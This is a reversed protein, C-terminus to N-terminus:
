KERLSDQMLQEAFKPDEYQSIASEDVMEKWAPQAPPMLPPMIPGRPIVRPEAKDCLALVPPRSVERLERLRSIHVRIDSGTDIIEALVWGTLDTREDALLILNAERTHTDRYGDSISLLAQEESTLSVRGTKTTRRLWRGRVSKMRPASALLAVIEASLEAPGRYLLTNGARAEARRAQECKRRAKNRTAREVRLEPTSFYGM